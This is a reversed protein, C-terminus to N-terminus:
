RNLNAQYKEVIKWLTNHEAATIGNGVSFFQFTRNVFQSVNGFDNYAGFVLNFAPRGTSTQTHTANVDNVASLYNASSLRSVTALGTTYSHPMESNTNNYARSAFNGGANRFNSSLWLTNNRTGMDFVGTVANDKIYYSVHFNNLSAGISTGILNTNGYVNGVSTYGRTDHTGSGVFTIRYAANLDRPDKLNWKQLAATTGVFPYIIQFKNWLQAYKLEKVLTDIAFIENQGTLGSADLFRITDGDLPTQAVSYPLFIPM